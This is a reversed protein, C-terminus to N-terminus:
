MLNIVNLMICYDIIIIENKENKWNKLTGEPKM